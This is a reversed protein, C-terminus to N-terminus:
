TILNSFYDEGTNLKKKELIGATKGTSAITILFPTNRFPRSTLKRKNLIEYINRAALKWAEKPKELTSQLVIAAHSQMYMKKMNKRKRAGYIDVQTREM